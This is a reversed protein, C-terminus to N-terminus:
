HEVPKKGADKQVDPVDARNHWLFKQLEKQRWRAEYGKTQVDSEWHQEVSFRHVGKHVVHRSGAADISCISRQM